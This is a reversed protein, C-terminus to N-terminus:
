GRKGAKRTRQTTPTEELGETGEGDETEQMSPLKWNCSLVIRLLVFLLRHLFEIATILLIIPNSYTGYIEDDYEDSVACKLGYRHVMCDTM